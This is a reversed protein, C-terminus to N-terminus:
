NPRRCGYRMTSQRPQSQVTPCRWEALAAMGWSRAPADWRAVELSPGSVISQPECQLGQRLDQSSLFLRKYTPLQSWPAAAQRYQLPNYHAPASRRCWPRPRCFSPPRPAALCQPEARGQLGVLESVTAPAEFRKVHARFPPVSAGHIKSESHPKGNCYKHAHGPAQRRWPLLRNKRCPPGGRAAGRRSSSYEVRSVRSIPDEAVTDGERHGRSPSCLGAAGSRLRLWEGLVRRRTGARSGRRLGPFSPGRSANYDKGGTNAQCSRAGIHQRSAGLHEYRTAGSRCTIPQHV